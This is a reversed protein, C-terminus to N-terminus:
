VHIYGTPRLITYSVAIFRADREESWLKKEGFKM